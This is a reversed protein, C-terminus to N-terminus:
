QAATQRSQQCATAQPQWSQSYSPILGQREDPSLPTAADDQDFLPDMM